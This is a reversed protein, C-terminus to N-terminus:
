ANWGQSQQKCKEKCRQTIAGVTGAVTAGRHWGGGPGRVRGEGRRHFCWRPQSGWRCCRSRSVSALLWYNECLGETCLVLGSKRYDLLGVKVARIQMYPHVHADMQIQQACMYVHQIARVTLCLLADLYILMFDSKLRVKQINVLM